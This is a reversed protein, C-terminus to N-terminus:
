ASGPGEDWDLIQYAAVATGDEVNTWPLTPM